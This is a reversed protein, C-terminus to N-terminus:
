KILISSKGTSLYAGPVEIGDKLAEGIARKDPATTTKVTIFQDPLASEDEVVVVPSGSRLTVTFLDCEIKKIGTAEMNVRLYDLLAESRSQAQKKMASLRAIENDIANVGSEFHALVARINNTKDKLDGEILALTDAIQEAPVDNLSMLANYQQAIEYLKM